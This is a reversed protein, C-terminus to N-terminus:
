VRRRPTGRRRQVVLRRRLARQRAVRPPTARVEDAVAEPPRRRLRKGELAPYTCYVCGHPCGRATQVAVTRYRGAGAFVRALDDPLAVPALDAAPAEVIGNRVEGAVLRSAAVEGDGIVGLDGHLTRLLDRPFISFAPGGLVLRAHPATRRLERALREYWALYTRTHPYAANDANRLSLGVVRPRFSGLEKRLAALPRRHLGADFVRAEAGAAELAGAVYLAGAPFAPEPFRERNAVVLLVRDM